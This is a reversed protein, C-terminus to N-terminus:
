SCVLQRTRPGAATVAIHNPPTVHCPRCKSLRGILIAAPVRWCAILEIYPVHQKAFLHNPPCFVFGEEPGRLACDVCPRRVVRTSPVHEVCQDLMKVLLAHSYVPKSYIYRRWARHVQMHVFRLYGPPKRQLVRNEGSIAYLRAFWQYRQLLLRHNRAARARAIGLLM